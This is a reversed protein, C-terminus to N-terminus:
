NPRLVAKVYKGDHMGEFSDQWGQLDTVRSVIPELNIKGATLLAVVQEWNQFTHSFSGQM